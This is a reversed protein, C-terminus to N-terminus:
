RMAGKPRQQWTAVIGCSATSESSGTTTSQDWGRTCVAHRTRANVALHTVIGGSTPAKRAAGQIVIGGCPPDRRPRRQLAPEAGTAPQGRCRVMFVDSAPSAPLVEVLEEMGEDLQVGM